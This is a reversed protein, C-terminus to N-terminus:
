ARRVYQTGEGVRESSEFGALYRLGLSGREGAVKEFPIIMFGIGVHHRIPGFVVAPGNYAGGFIVIAEYLIVNGNRPRVNGNKHSSAM